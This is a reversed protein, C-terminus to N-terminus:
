PLILRSWPPFELSLYGNSINTVTWLSLIGALRGYALFNFRKVEAALYLITLRPLKLQSHRKGLFFDSAKALHTFLFLLILSLM